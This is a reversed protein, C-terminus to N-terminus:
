VQLGAQVLYSRVTEARRSSLALNYERTGIRDTHGVISIADYDLGNIDRVLRDLEQRGEPKLESRDFDFLARAQLTVTLLPAPEPAPAPPPAAAPAPAPQAVPAPRSGFRYVFGVSALDVRDESVRNDEIMYREVEARLSLADSVRYQLGAGYKAKTGRETRNVFGGAPLSTGFSQEIRLNNIGVRGFVSMNGRFPLTGVLDVGFGRISATGTQVATPLMRTNFSFDGLDVYSGELAIYPSFSYAGLLKWGTDDEDMDIASTNFGASRLGAVLADSDMEARARGASFGGYWGSDQALAPQSSLAMLMALTTMGSRAPFQM